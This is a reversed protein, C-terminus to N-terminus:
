FPVSGMVATRHILRHQEFTYDAIARHQVACDDWVLFDGEAWRHTYLHESRTTHQILFDVLERSEETGLGEIGVTYQQNVYLCKRRTRPHTRVVPHTVPPTEHHAAKYARVLEGYPNQVHHTALLNSIRAKLEDPLTEYAYTASAFMTGGLPKGQADHPITIAHLCAYANPVREYVRDTHWYQGADVVGVPQGDKLINSLLTIDPYGPLLWKSEHRPPKHEGLRSTFDVHRQESLSFQGRFCIVSYYDLAKHILEFTADDIDQSLDIGRIEAGLPASSPIAQFDKTTM